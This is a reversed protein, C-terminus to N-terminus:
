RVEKTTQYNVRLKEVPTYSKQIASLAYCIAVAILITITLHKM